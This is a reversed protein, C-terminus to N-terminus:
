LVVFFPDKVIWKKYNLMVVIRYDKITV